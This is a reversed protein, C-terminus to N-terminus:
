LYVSKSKKLESFKYGTIINVYGTFKKDTTLDGTDILIENNLSDLKTKTSYILLNNKDIKNLIRPSIQQNGRGFLFGQNGIVTLILKSNKAQKTNLYNYIDKESCDRYLLKKNKIIDFGLLTGDIDISKLISNTTSGPGFIYTDVSTYRDRFDEILNDIEDSEDSISAGKSEQFYNDALNLPTNLYGIFKTTTIGKNIKRDDLDSVERLIFKSDQYSCFESIIKSSYIPSLPFISSYMKVGVPIGVVPIDTDIIKILDSSTGDGGAFVILDVNQTKFANLLKYTDERSTRQIKSTYVIKYKFDFQKLLYEGLLDNGTYFTIKDTIKSDVNNLTDYTRQLSPLSYVDTVHDWINNSDSGKFGLPGGFGSIPNVILGIKIKDM